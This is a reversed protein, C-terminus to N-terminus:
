TALWPYAARARSWVTASVTAYHAVERQVELLLLATVACGGLLLGVLMLGSVLSGISPKIATLAKRDLWRYMAYLTPLPAPFLVYRRPSLWAKLRTSASTLLASERVAALSLFHKLASCTSVPVLLLLFLPYRLMVVFFCGATLLLFLQSSQSHAHPRAEWGRRSGDVEEVAESRGGEVAESRGGEVEKVTEGRGGEVEEVAESGEGRGGEVEEVAQGGWDRVPSSFAVHLAPVSSPGGRAMGGGSSAAELPQSDPEPNHVTSEEGSQKCTSGARSPDKALRRAKEARRMFRFLAVAGGCLFLAAICPLTARGLLCSGISVSLLFWLALSLLQFLARCQTRQSLLLM